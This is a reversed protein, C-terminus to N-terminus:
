GDVSPKFTGPLPEIQPRPGLTKALGARLGVLAAAERPNFSAELPFAVKTHALDGITEIGLQELKKTRVPGIGKVQEVSAETARSDRLPKSGVGETKAVFDADLLGQKEARRFDIVQNHHVKM